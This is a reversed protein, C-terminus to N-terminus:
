TKYEDQVVMLMSKEEKGEQTFGIAKKQEAKHSRSM